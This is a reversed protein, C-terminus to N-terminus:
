WVNINIGVIKDSSTIPDRGPSGPIKLVIDHLRGFTQGDGTGYTAIFKDLDYGGHGGIEIERGERGNRGEFIIQVSARKSSGETERLRELQEKLEAGAIDRGKAKKTKPFRFKLRTAPGIKKVEVSPRRSSKQDHGPVPEHAPQSRAAPRPLPTQPTPGTYRQALQSAITGPTPRVGRPITTGGGKARVPVPHGDHRLRRAPLESVAGTVRLETLAHVLNAGRSPSESKAVQVILSSDRGVERGIAAYSMGLAHLSRILDGATPASSSIESM